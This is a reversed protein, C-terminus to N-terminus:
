DPSTGTKQNKVMGAKSKCADLRNMAEAIGTSASTMEIPASDTTRTTLTTRRTRM